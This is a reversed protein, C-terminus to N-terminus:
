RHDTCATGVRCPTCQGCSEHEFFRMMNRAAAKATDQTSLVIVAASGIFCGYPQLTDFDLPLDGMSAPLIGGSAGGPLYGYFAHGAAMGGCFEEILDRVTIGAPALKVGPDKVRGSVSFSRLGKRGNRGQSAFWSAGKELLERVWYLTEFNHELTPRGFLGVQAVYPPRLRPMGRKGEISEIMASEEGCIYAGAGRRLHITPLPCPPDAELAEIERTLAARCAAYEDRLYIYIDGIGVAWAAILMGELFRHPDRELYYRDKFTGPEGEDINVAMLRPAPEARVIKWKRGGPFGAGGLGRLGSNEMEAIVDDARREGNICAVYLKYGGAARYAAYDILAPVEATVRKQAVADTIKQTTAEDITCQGVVAAPAHECRGICPAGIVTRTQSVSDHWIAPASANRRESSDSCPSPTRTSPAGHM